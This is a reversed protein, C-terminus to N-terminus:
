QVVLARGQTTRIELINAPLRFPAEINIGAPNSASKSYHSVLEQLVTKPVPIGGVTASELTFAGVGKATRLRGIAEVPTTGRLFAWPSLMGGKQADRVADLDVTARGTLRGDPLITIEPDVVGPPLDAKGHVAMYANVERELVTTSRAARKEGLAHTAIQVLKTHFADADARSWKAGAALPATLLLAALGCATARRSTTPQHRMSLDRLLDQSAEM